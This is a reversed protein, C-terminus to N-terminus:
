DFAQRPAMKRLNMLAYRMRGLATNISVGTYDAIEKFSMDKHYRLILVDRQEKPLRAVCSHLLDRRNREVLQEEINPSPYPLRDLYEERFNEDHISVVHQAKTRRFHDIVMNRAVRFVWQRFKGQMQYTGARLVHIVKIFTDQFLDDAVDSDGVQLRIYSLLEGDYRDILADFAENCGEAYLSILEDDSRLKIDKM